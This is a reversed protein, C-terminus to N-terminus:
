NQRIYLNGSFDNTLKKLSKSISADFQKDGITLVFGGILSADVKEVLEVSGKVSKQAIALVENRLKEDLKIASTVTVTNIGKAEKYLHTYQKSISFLDAERRKKAIINIFELSLKNIKSGFLEALIAAKKDSKITPNNLLVTLDRSNHCTNAILSMDNNVADLVGQETALDLLSKAYRVAVKSEIM